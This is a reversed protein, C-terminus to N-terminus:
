SSSISVPKGKFVGWLYYKGRFRWYLKPLQDSPFILLEANDFVAKLALDLDIMEHVLDDIIKCDREKEEVFFYLAISDDTPASINFRKPWVDSRSLLELCLLPPMANAGEWVKLCAKSSIHAVITGYKENSIDFCGRWVPDIIPLGYTHHHCELSPNSLIKKSADDDFSPNEQPQKVKGTPQLSLKKLSDIPVCEECSWIVEEDSFEPIKNLCYSHEASVQCLNCYILLEAYGTVGCKQCIGVEPDISNPQGRREDDM